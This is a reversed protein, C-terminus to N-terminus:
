FLGIRFMVYFNNIVVFSYIIVVILPFWKLQKDQRIILWMAIILLPIILLKIIDWYGNTILFAAVPNIEVSIGFLSTLYATQFYDILNLIYILSLLIIPITM